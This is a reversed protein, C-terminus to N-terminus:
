PELDNNSCLSGPSAMEEVVFIVKAIAIPLASRYPTASRKLIYFLACSHLASGFNKEREDLPRRRNQKNEGSRPSPYAKLEDSIVRSQWWEVMSVASNGLIEYQLSFGRCIYVVNGWGARVAIKGASEQGDSIGLHAWAVYVGGHGREKCSM